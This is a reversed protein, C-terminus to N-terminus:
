GPWSATLLVMHSGCKNCILPRLLTRRSIAPNIHILMCIICLMILTAWKSVTLFGAPICWVCCVVACSAVSLLCPACRYPLILVFAYLFTPFM